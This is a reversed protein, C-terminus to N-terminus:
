LLKDLKPNNVFVCEHNLLQVGKIWPIPVLCQCIV